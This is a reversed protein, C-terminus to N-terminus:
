LPTPITANNTPKTEGTPCSRKGSSTKHQAIFEKLKLMSESVAHSRWPRIMERAEKALRAETERMKLIHQYSAKLDKVVSVERAQKFGVVHIINSASALLELDKVARVPLKEGHKVLFESLAQAIHHNTRITDLLRRANKAADSNLSGCSSNIPNPPDMKKNSAMKALQTFLFPWLPM